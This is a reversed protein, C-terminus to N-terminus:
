IWRGKNRFRNDLPKTLAEEISWGLRRIRNNVVSYRIGLRDAWDKLCLTIGNRTVHVTRRTNRNQQARTAWRCNGPEYNGDNDIRDISWGKGDPRTGMDCLFASFSTRWAECVVIGRGGYNKYEPADANHCRRNIHLWAQYTPMRSLGHQERTKPTNWALDFSEWTSIRKRLASATIGLEKARRTTKSTRERRQTGPYTM